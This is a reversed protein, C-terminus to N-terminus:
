AHAPIRQAFIVVYGDPDQIAFERPVVDTLKM